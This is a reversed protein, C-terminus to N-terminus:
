PQQRLDEEHEDSPHHDSGECTSRASVRWTRVVVLFALYDYLAHAIVPTTLNPPSELRYLWSLFFGAAAAVIAYTPTIFHCLGFLMNTPIPGIWPDLVGRFLFEECIGALAALLILDYWRCASLYPGLTDILFDRVNRLPEWSVRVSVLFMLFLAVAGGVGYIIGAPAFQVRTWPDSVDSLWAILLAAGFLSGESVAAVNLFEGRDEPDTLDFM